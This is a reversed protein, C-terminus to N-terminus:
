IVLNDERWVTAANGALKEAKTCRSALKYTLRQNSYVTEGQKRAAECAEEGTHGDFWGIGMCETMPQNAGNSGHRFVLYTAMVKGKTNCTM